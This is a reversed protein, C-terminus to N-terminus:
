RGGALRAALAARDPVFLHHGIRNTEGVFDHLAKSRAMDASLDGLFALRLQYTQLKQIFLGAQRTELHFFDPALRTIPVVLMEVGSGYVQGILDVADAEGALLPGDAPLLGLVVGGLTDIVM